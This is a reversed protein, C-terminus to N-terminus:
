ETRVTGPAADGAAGPVSPIPHDPADEGWEQQLDLLFAGGLLGMAIHHHWGAWSRTEYEDLGVDGKETEFEMEIRWRSGGVYALTELPTGEPANSLYYRPESGDLNCRWIAWVVEGPKRRKTVRVRQASFRYTRPGQSGEAVTYRPRDPHRSGRSGPGRGPKGATNGTSSPVYRAGPRTRSPPLGAHSMSGSPSPRRANLKPTAANSNRASRGRSTSTGTRSEPKQEYEHRNQERAEVEAPTPEVRLKPEVRPKPKKVQQSASASKKNSKPRKPTLIVLTSEFIREKSGGRTRLGAGKEPCSEGQGAKPVGPTAQLLGPVPDRVPHPSGRMGYLHGPAQGQGKKGPHQATDIGQARSDPGTPTRVRPTEGAQSGARSTDTRGTAKADQTPAHGETVDKSGTQELQPPTRGQQSAKAPLLHVRFYPRNGVRAALQPSLIWSALSLKSSATSSYRFWRSSASVLCWTNKSFPISSRRCSSSGAPSISRIM